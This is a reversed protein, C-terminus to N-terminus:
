IRKTAMLTSDDAYRLNILTRGAIKVRERAEEMEAKRTIRKAYLNFLFLSLICGQRAGKKLKFSDTDGFATTISASQDESM